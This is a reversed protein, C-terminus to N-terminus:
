YMLKKSMNGNPKVNWGMKKYFGVAQKVSEGKLKHIKFQKAIAELKTLLLKGVPYGERNKKNKTTCILELNFYDGGKIKMRRKVTFLLFGVYKNNIKAIIGNPYEKFAEVPKGPIVGSLACYENANRKNVFYDMHKQSKQEASFLPYKSFDINSKNGGCQIIEPLGSKLKKGSYKFGKKLKGTKPDIGRHKRNM